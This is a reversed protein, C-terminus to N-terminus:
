FVGVGTVCRSVDDLFVILNLRKLRSNKIMHWDGQQMVNSYKREYQVCKRKRSKEPPM